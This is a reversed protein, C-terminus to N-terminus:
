SKSFSKVPIDDGQHFSLAHKILSSETQGRRSLCYPNQWDSKTCKLLLRSSRISSICHTDFHVGNGHSVHTTLRDMLKGRENQSMPHFGTEEAGSQWETNPWIQAAVSSRRLIQLPNNVEECSYIEVELPCASTWPQFATQNQLEVWWDEQQIGLHTWLYKVPLHKM